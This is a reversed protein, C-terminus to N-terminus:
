GLLSGLLAAIIVMVTIVNDSDSMFKCIAFIILATYVIGALTSIVIAAISRKRLKAEEYAGVGIIGLILGILPLPVAFVLACTALASSRKKPSHETQIMM